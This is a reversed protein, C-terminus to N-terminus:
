NCGAGLLTLSNRCTVADAQAVFAGIDWPVTFTAGTIDTSFLGSGPDTMGNHRAVTDSNAPQFNGGAADVFTAAVGNQSNAGPADSAIDSANYNSAADFTGVFGDNSGMAINNKAIVTSTGGRNFGLRCNYCTNNYLTVTDGTGTLVGYMSNAGNAFNYIVNDWATATISGSSPAVWQFGVENSATGSYVGKCINNSFYQDGAIVAAASIFCVSNGSGSSATVQVQLGNMRFYGAGAALSIGSAAELRYKSTNYVGNPSRESAPTYLSIYYTASTTWGAFDTSTTDQFSYLEAQRVELLTTLNGQEAAEWASLSAYDGAASKVTRTRTFAINETFTVYSDGSAAATTGAYNMTATRGSGMTGANTIRTRIVIRDGIAFATSTPAADTWNRAANSTPMEGGTDSKDSVLTESGNYRYVKVRWACNCQIASEFGWVNYTITGSMTFGTLVPDSAFCLETTGAAVTTAIDTGSAASNTVSTTVGAGHVANVARRSTTCPSYAGAETPAVTTLFVQTAAWAPSCLALILLLRKM